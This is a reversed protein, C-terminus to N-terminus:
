TKAREELSSHLNTYRWGFGAFQDNEARQMRTVLIVYSHFTKKNFDIQGNCFPFANNLARPHLLSLLRLAQIACATNSKNQSRFIMFIARTM